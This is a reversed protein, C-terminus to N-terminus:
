PDPRHCDWSTHSSETPQHEVDFIGSFYSRWDESNSTSYPGSVIPATSSYMELLPEMEGLNAGTSSGVQPSSAIQHNLLAMRSDSQEGDIHYAEPSTLLSSAAPTRGVTSSVQTDNNALSPQQQIGQSSSSAFPEFATSGGEIVSPPEINSSSPELQAGSIERGVLEYRPIYYDYVLDPNITLVHLKSHRFCPCCVHVPHKWRILYASYTDISM